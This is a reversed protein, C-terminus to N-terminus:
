SLRRGAEFAAAAHLGQSNGERFSRARWPPSSGTTSRSALIRTTSPLATRSGPGVPLWQRQMLAQAQRRQAAIMELDRRRAALVIALAQVAEIELGALDHRGVAGVEM